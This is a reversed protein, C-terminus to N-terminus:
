PTPNPGECVGEGGERERRREVYVEGVRREEIWGCGRLSPADVSRKLVGCVCWFFARMRSDGVVVLEEHPLSACLDGLAGQRLWEDEAGTGGEHEWRRGSDEDDGGGLGSGGDKSGLGRVGDELRERRERDVAAWMDTENPIASRSDGTGVDDDANEDDGEGRGGGAPGEGRREKGGGGGGRGDGSAWVQFETLIANHCVDDLSLFNRHQQYTNHRAGVQAREHTRAYTHTHTHARAHMHAHTSTRPHAHMCKHAFTFTRTHARMGADRMCGRM